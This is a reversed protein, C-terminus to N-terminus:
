GECQYVNEEFIQKNKGCSKKKKETTDGDDEIEKERRM